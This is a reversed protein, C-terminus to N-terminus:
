LGSREYLSLAYHIIIYFIVLIMIRVHKDNVPCSICHRTNFFLELRGGRKYSSFDHKTHISSKKLIQVPNQFSFCKHLQM